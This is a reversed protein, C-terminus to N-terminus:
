EQQDHSSEDGTYLEHASRSGHWKSNTRAPDFRPFCGSEKIAMPEQRKETTGSFEPFRSTRIIRLKEPKACYQETKVARGISVSAFCINTERIVADLNVM